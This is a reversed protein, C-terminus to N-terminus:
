EAPPHDDEEEMEIMGLNQIRRSINLLAANEAANLEGFEIAKNAYARIEADLTM